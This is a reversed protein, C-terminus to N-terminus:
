KLKFNITDGIEYKDNSKFYFTEYYASNVDYQKIEYRYEYRSYSEAKSISNVVFTDDYRFQVTCSVCSLLITIIGLIKKM